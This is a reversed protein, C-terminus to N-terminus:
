GGLRKNVTRQVDLIVSILRLTSTLSAKFSSLDTAKLKLELGHTLPRIAMTSRRSSHESEPELVALIMKQTEVEVELKIMAQVGHIGVSTQLQKERWFTLGAIAL